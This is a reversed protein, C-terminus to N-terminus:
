RRIWGDVAEKAGLIAGAIMVVVIWLWFTPSFRIGTFRQKDELWKIALIKVLFKEMPTAYKM